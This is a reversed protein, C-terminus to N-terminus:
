NMRKRRRELAMPYAERARAGFMEAHLKIGQELHEPSTAVAALFEATVYSLAFLPDPAEHHKAVHARCIRLLRNGLKIGSNVSM